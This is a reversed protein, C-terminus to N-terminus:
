FNLAGQGLPTVAQAALFEGRGFQDVQHRVGNLRVPCGVGVDGKVAFCGEVGRGSRVNGAGQGADGDGHLVVDIDQALRRAAGGAKKGRIDSRIVGGGDAQQLLRAADRQAARVHIFEGHTGASFVGSVADRAVRFGRVANGAAGGAARGGGDCGSGGNGCETGVRAAGDPLRGPVATDHAELRGVPANGAVSQYGKGRGQVLDAGHGPCHFVGGDQELGDGSVVTFVGCGCVAGHRVKFSRQATVDFPQFHADRRFVKGGAVM